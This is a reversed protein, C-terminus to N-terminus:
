TIAVAVVPSLLLPLVFGKALVAFHVGAGSVLAAGILAGTLAHTTSVPLDFRTAALVTMPRRYGGARPPPLGM